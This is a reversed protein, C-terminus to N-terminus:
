IFRPTEDAVFQSDHEYGGSSRDINPDIDLVHNNEPKKSPKPKPLRLHVESLLNNFPNNLQPTNRILKESSKEM